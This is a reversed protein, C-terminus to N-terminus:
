LPQCSPNDEEVYVNVTSNKSVITDKAPDTYKVGCHDPVTTVILVPNLGKSRIAYDAATKYMGTVDPM